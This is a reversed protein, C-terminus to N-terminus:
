VDAALAELVFILQLVVLPDVASFSFKRALHSSTMFSEQTNVKVIEHKLDTPHSESHFSCEFAVKQRM